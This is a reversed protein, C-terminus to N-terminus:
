LIPVRSGENWPVDGRRNRPRAQGAGGQGRQERLERIGDRGVARNDLENCNIRARPISGGGRERFVRYNQIATGGRCRLFEHILVDVPRVELVAMM